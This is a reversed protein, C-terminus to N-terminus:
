IRLKEQNGAACDSPSFGSFPIAPFMRDLKSYMDPFKSSSQNMAFSTPFLYTHLFHPASNITVRPPLPSSWQQPWGMSSFFYRLYSLLSEAQFVNDNHPICCQLAKCLLSRLYEPKSRSPFSSGPVWAAGRMLSLLFFQATILLYPRTLELVGKHESSVSIMMRSTIKETSSTIEITGGYCDPFQLCSIRGKTKCDNVRISMM